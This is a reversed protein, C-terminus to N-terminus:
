DLRTITATYVIWLGQALRERVEEGLDLPWSAYGSVAEPDPAVQVRGWGSREAPETAIVLHHADTDFSVRRSGAATSVLYPFRIPQELSLDVLYRGGREMYFEIEIEGDHRLGIWGRGGNVDPASSARYSKTNQLRISGSNSLHPQRASLVFETPRRVMEPRAGAPRARIGAANLLASRDADDLTSPPDLARGAGPVWPSGGSVPVRLVVVPPTKVAVPAELRPELARVEPNREQASATDSFSVFAVMLAATSSLRISGRGGERKMGWM